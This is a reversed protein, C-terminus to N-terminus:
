NGFPSLTRCFGVRYRWLHKNRIGLVVSGIGGCGILAVKLQSLQRQVGEGFVQQRAFMSEQHNERFRDSNITFWSNYFEIPTHYTGQSDWIRFQYRTLSEDFVGSILKPPHPITALFQVYKAEHREDIDSFQPIQSGYHTHIHVITLPLNESINDQCNEAGDFM